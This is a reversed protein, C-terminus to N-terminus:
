RAITSGSGGEGRRRSVHTPLVRKVGPSSRGGTTIVRHDQAKLCVRRPTEAGLSLIMQKFIMPLKRWPRFHTSQGKVQPTGYVGDTPKCGTSRRARPQSHRSLM